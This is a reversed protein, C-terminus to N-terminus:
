KCHFTVSKGKICNSDIPTEEFDSDGEMKKKQKSLPNRLEPEFISNAPMLTKSFEIVPVWDFAVDLWSEGYHLRFDKAGSIKSQKYRKRIYAAFNQAINKLEVMSAPNLESLRAGNLKCVERMVESGM